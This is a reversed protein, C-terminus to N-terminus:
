DVYGLARLGREVEDDVPEDGALVEALLARARAAELDAGGDAPNLEGPDRSLDYRRVAGDPGAIWKLEGRGM